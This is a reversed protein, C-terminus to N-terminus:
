ITNSECSCKRSRWYRRWKKSQPSKLWVEYIENRIMFFQLDELEEFMLSSSSDKTIKVEYVSHQPETIENGIAFLSFTLFLFILITKKM